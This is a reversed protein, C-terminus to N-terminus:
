QASNEGKDGIKGYEIRDLLQEFASREDRNMRAGNDGTEYETKDETQSREAKNRAEAAQQLRWTIGEDALDGM